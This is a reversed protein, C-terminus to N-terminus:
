KVAQCLPTIRKLISVPLDGAEYERRIGNESHVTQYDWGKKNIMYAAADVVVDPYLALFAEETMTRYPDGYRYIKHGAFTLFASIASDSTEDSLAKVMAIMEALAPDVDGTNTGTENETQEGTNENLEEDEM